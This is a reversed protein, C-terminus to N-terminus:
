GNIAGTGFETHIRATYSLVNNAVSIDLSSVELVGPISVLTKRLYNVYLSYNPSGVWITQFNPIGLDLTLVMEGLQAKSATECAALVAPLGTLITINKANDLYLDNNADTGFTTTM